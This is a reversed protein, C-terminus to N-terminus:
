RILSCGGGNGAPVGECVGAGNCQDNETNADGDDCTSDAPEFQCDSDCCDGDSTNGDDCQEEGATVGDGCIVTEDAGIDPAGGQVRPDGDFDKDPLLPADASGQDILPSGAALHFNGNSPDVLDPAISLNNQQTLNPTCAPNEDCESVIEGVDNNSILITAGLLGVAQDDLFIDDGLASSSNGFIINNIIDAREPDGEAIGAFLGGGDDAATNGVITNNTIVIREGPGDSFNYQILAGGAVGGAQNGSFVNNIAVVNRNGFLELGGADDAAENGIVLSNTLTVNGLEALLDAGAGFSDTFNEKFICNDVVLDVEASDVLLGGGNSNVGTSKGNQITLNKVSIAVGADGGSLNSTRISMVRKLDGGDLITTVRSEGVIELSFKEESGGTNDALYTFTAASADYTGAAINITDDEGNNQATTLASALGATDTVNFTAARVSASTALVAAIVALRLPM